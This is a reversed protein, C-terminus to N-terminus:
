MNMAHCVPGLLPHSYTLSRIHLEVSFIAAVQHSAFVAHSYSLRRVPDKGHCGLNFALLAWPSISKKNPSRFPQHPCVLLLGVMPHLLV